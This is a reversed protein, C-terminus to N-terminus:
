LRFRPRRVPRNVLELEMDDATVIKLKRTVGDVLARTRHDDVGIARSIERESLGDSLLKAVEGEIENLRALRGRRDGGM